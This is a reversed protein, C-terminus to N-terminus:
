RGPNVDVADIPRTENRSVGVIMLELPESGTNEISHVEALQLPVADGARVPATEM